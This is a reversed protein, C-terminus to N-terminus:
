VRPAEAALADNEAQRRQIEAYIEDGLEGVEAASAKLAKYRADEIDLDRACWSILQENAAISQNRLEALHARLEALTYVDLIM